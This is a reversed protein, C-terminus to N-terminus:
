PLQNLWRLSFVGGLILFLTGVASVLATIETREEVWSVMSGLNAYIDALRGSEAAYFYQGGTEAAINPLTAEDLRVQQTGIRVIAGRQGVGVTFVKVQAERARAMATDPTRGLASEGDSLLVVVGPAPQGAEDIPREALADLALHLGEGIATGGNARLGDIAEIVAYRDDTPPANIQANSSFTVLGVQIHQPLEHVFAKAAQKAATMRNPALDNATMSASVDMVLMITTQDEPVAIVAMPRAISLLLAVVGLLYLLPPVHRRFGPGPGAVEKLLDLNTFRLAYARRRRQALLYLGLLIPVLALGLLLLPWQFTM